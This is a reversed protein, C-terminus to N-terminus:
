AMQVPLRRILPKREADTHLSAISVIQNQDRLLHMSQASTGFTGHVATQRAQQRTTIRSVSREYTNPSTVDCVSM